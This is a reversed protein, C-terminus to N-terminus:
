KKLYKFNIYFEYYPWDMGQNKNYYIKEFYPDKELDKLYEYFNKGKSKIFSETVEFTKWGKVKNWNIKDVVKTM